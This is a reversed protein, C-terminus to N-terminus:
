LPRPRVGWELSISQDPALVILDTGTQFANPPCTLPEVALGQRRRGPALTDGSFVQVYKYQEDMWVSVARGTEPNTLMVHAHGNADRELEAFCEDLVQAGIPRQSTFDYESGSVPLRRGTPLRREADLELRSRAALHLVASDVRPTGVTFYPHQGAGFPLAREGQNHAKTRVTLGREGLSYEIRLDLVFPYGPRPHIQLTMEARNPAQDIISWNLWRTLGHIANHRAIEDVPLQYHQGQFDYQGDGM